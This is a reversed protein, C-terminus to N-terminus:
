TKKDEAPSTDALAILTGRARPVEKFSFSGLLGVAMDSTSPATAPSQGQIGLDQQPGTHPVAFPRHLGALQQLACLLLAPVASPLFPARKLCPM